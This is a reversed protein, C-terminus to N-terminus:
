FINMQRVEVGGRLQVYSGYGMLLNVEHRPAEHVFFVPDRTTGDPPDYTLDVTEFVGLRSIRFRARELALPDLPDGQQLRVRRDLTAARTKRNGEFRVQGVVVRPGAVITVVVEADKRVGDDATVETAVHVGVDPYGIRYYAHRVAERIDQELTPTWPQGIWGAPDPLAAAVSDDDQYRVATVQWRPGEVVEVQLTVAGGAEGAKSARVQADAFGLQRLGDLLAAVGRNMKSPSYANTKRTTILTADIRFHSRAKKRDVATLGSFLVDAVHSRGGPKVVFVAKTAAIPRPLPQAFSPDFVFRREQGGEATIRIEIEPQQFGEEALTASLIVAGDEIA